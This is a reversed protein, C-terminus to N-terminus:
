INMEMAYHPIGEEIFEDSVVMFGMKKYYGVADKQANLIVKKCNLVKKIETLCSEMLKRGLGKGHELTLVRSIKVVDESKYFARLYATINNDEEFYMHKCIFDLGDLDQCNMKKEVVFIEARAKLIGYLETTTLENFPKVNFNM